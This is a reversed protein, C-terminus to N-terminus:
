ERIARGAQQLLEFAAFRKDQWPVLDGGAPRYIEGIRSMGTMAAIVDPYKQAAVAALIASGLLVPEPSTSGVVTLGTTDALLQRVLDSQAAGGSVVITDIAIGKNAMAAVIQRVGYGIGLLGAVYLAVLSDLSTDMGLGAILAKSEPDAFPSRNGLFEPVVHLGEALRAVAPLDASKTTARRGLWATLGLGEARAKASAEASAPHFAVLHDIAAGAASQGGENLWLGPVMSSFYPGWVGPVFAPESTSAMTCASTGFVYAMRSQLTGVSGTGGVTGVGGAHADILGAAVPTGPLLGLDVAAAETLGQALATGGEVVETGIRAFGEDALAGLGIARFYADDWRREHGLYTWKCTLTCISRELSGTSRWTLYDTLDFFHEAADFTAPLNERLWLLKPTEMEPSITGGVYDLVAHKGANIRQAQDLARHDMWVIINRENDGSRGVPLPAGGKGVVVLSCTADFGIGAIDRGALGSKTVAERVSACVACWIDESSQEAVEGPEIFLAIDRKASALMTGKSDFVGARASGTGVDIGLFHSM